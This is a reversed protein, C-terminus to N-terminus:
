ETVEESMAVTAVALLEVVKECAEKLSERLRFLHPNLEKAVEVLSALDTFTLPDFDAVNCRCMMALDELSIGPAAFENTVDCPRGPAEVAKWWARIEAVTLQHVAIPGGSTHITKQM